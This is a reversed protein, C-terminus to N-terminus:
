ARWPGVTWDEVLAAAMGDCYAELADHDPCEDVSICVDAEAMLSAIQQEVPHHPDRDTLAPAQPREVAVLTGGMQRIMALENPYRIGTIVAVSPRKDELQHYLCRVWTDPDVDRLRTGLQQLVHADRRDMLQLTRAVASLADSFAFREAGPIQRVLARALEDKGHRARGTIGVVWVGPIPTWEM